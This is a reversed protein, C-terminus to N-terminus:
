EKVLKYANSNVLLIFIGTAFERTDVVLSNCILNKQAFQIRGSLDSILVTNIQIDNSQITIFDVCPNPFYSLLYEHHKNNRSSVEIDNTNYKAGNITVITDNISAPIKIEFCYTCVCTCLNGTDLTTIFITDLSREIIAFHEGCCNAGITGHILLSDNIYSFNIGLECALDDPIPEYDGFACFLTHQVTDQCYSNLVSFLLVSYM